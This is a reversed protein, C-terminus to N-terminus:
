NAKHTEIIKRLNLTRDCLNCKFAAQKKKLIFMRYLYTPFHLMKWPQTTAIETTFLLIYHTEIIRRLNLARDCLDCIFVALTTKLIFM